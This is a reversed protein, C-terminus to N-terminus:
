LRTYHSIFAFSHNVKGAQNPEMTAMLPPWGTSRATEAVTFALSLESGGAEAGSEM